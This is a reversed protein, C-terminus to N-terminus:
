RPGFAPSTFTCTNWLCSVQSPVPLCQGRKNVYPFHHSGKWDWVWVHLCVNIHLCVSVHLAEGRSNGKGALAECGVEHPRITDPRPKGFWGEEGKTYVTDSSSQPKQDETGDAMPKSSPAPLHSTALPAHLYAPSISQTHSPSYPIAKAPTEGFLLIFHSSLSLLGLSHCEPPVSQQGRWRVLHWLFPPPKGISFTIM